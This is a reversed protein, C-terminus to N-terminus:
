KKGTDAPAPAPAPQPTPAPQQGQQPPPGQPMPQQGQPMGPMQAPPAVQPQTARIQKVKDVVRQFSAENVNYGYVNRLQTGLVGLPPLQRQGSVAQALWERVQQEIVANGASGKPAHLEAVGTVTLLQRIAARAQDRMQATEQASLGVNRRRAEALLMRETAASKVMQVISSDPADTIQKLAEDPAGVMQAQIDSASLQGGRFTALAREGARGRLPKDNNKAMEKVQQAAGTEVHLNNAKSLSDAFHEVATQRNKGVLYQRFQEKREGLPEQRREEVKIVHFGFPSEVVPSVQGAQLRFAAEEFTPTMQGRGFFGLDGGQDKSTDQSYQRALAAFDAGGAAQRQITEALRKVSDRQAPTADAPPRLLIHRAHVQQGPGQTQWAQELQADTFATDTKVTTQFLRNLTEQDRQQQTMKDLDLVALSTDEAYATALLTYDVWREAVARVVDATPPVQPSAAILNAAEDVKLEKGAASAVEDKHANVAQKLSNCGAAMPVAAVLLAWRSLKM